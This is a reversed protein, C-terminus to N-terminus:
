IGEEWAAPGGHRATKRSTSRLGARERAEHLATGPRRSEEDVLELFRSLFRTLQDKSLRCHDGTHDGDNPNHVRNM